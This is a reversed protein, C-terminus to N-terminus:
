HALLYRGYSFVHRYAIQTIPDFQAFLGALWQAIEKRKKLCAHIYVAQFITPWNPQADFESEQLEGYFEQLAHLNNDKIFVKCDQIISRNIRTDM